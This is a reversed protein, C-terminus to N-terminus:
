QGAERNQDTTGSKDASGGHLQQETAVWRPYINKDDGRFGTDIETAPDPGGGPRWRIVLLGDRSMVKGALRRDTRIEVISEDPIWMPESGNRELLIGRGHRSLAATARFGLDGVTIRDQWNPAMTSGVYVGTTVPLVPPGLDEPCTPLDGLIAGQNRARRRWGRYMAYVLLAWFAVLIIVLFARTM